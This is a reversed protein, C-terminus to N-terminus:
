AAYSTISVMVSAVKVPQEAPTLLAQRARGYAAHSAAQSRESQGPALQSPATHPRASCRERSNTRLRMSGSTLSTSHLSTFHTLLTRLDFSDPLPYTARYALVDTFYTM